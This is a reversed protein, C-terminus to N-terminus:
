GAARQADGPAMGIEDIRARDRLVSIDALPDGDLVRPHRAEAGDGLGPFLKGCTIHRAM